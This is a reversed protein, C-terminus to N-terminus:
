VQGSGLELVVETGQQGNGDGNDHSPGESLPARPAVALQWTGIPTCGSGSCPCSQFVGFRWNGLGM